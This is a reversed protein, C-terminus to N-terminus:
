KTIEKEFEQSYLLRFCGKCQLLKKRRLSILDDETVGYVCASCNGNLVPVVPDAVRSRMMVYKAIWESPVLKEKEVRESNKEKLDQEIEKIEQEKKQISQELEQMSQAHILKLSEYAKQTAELQNWAGVLIEENEAQKRKLQDIESKLSQYQKYDTYNELRQKKERESSDLTKMELELRDVEKRANTANFKTQELQSTVQKEKYHLDAIEKKLLTINKENALIKQDFTILDIFTQFPTESM